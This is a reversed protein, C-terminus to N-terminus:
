RRSEADHHTRNRWDHGLDIVMEAATQRRAQSRIGFRDVEHMLQSIGDTKTVFADAGDALAEAEDLLAASFVIMACHPVVQRLLWTVEFGDIARM